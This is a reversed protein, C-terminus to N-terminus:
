YERQVNQKEWQELLLRNEMRRGNIREFREEVTMHGKAKWAELRGEMKLKIVEFNVPKWAWAPVGVDCRLMDPYEPLTAHSHAHLMWAAHSAGNWSAMPYHSVTLWHGNIRLELIGPRSRSGVVETFQDLAVKPMRDHTGLIMTKKGKLRGIYRTHDRWALDGVIKVEDKAAVRSNYNDILAEDMEHCRERAIAGDVFRGTAPDVDGDRLWPRRDHILCNAHGLHPDAWFWIESM